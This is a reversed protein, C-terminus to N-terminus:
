NAPEVLGLDDLFELLRGVMTLYQRDASIELVDAVRQALDHADLNARELQRLLAATFLNVHHTDGSAEHFVVYEGEDWSRWILPAGVLKWKRRSDTEKQSPM